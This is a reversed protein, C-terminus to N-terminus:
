RPPEGSGGRASCARLPRTARTCFFQVDRDAALPRLAPGFFHAADDYAFLAMPQGNAVAADLVRQTNTFPTTEDHLGHQLLLPTTVTALAPLLDDVKATSWLSAARFADTARLARLSVQGGMSHAWLFANDTDAAELQELARVLALVDQAYYDVANDLTVFAGGESRNHGRYDPMVVLFGREAFLVPVSRYYDGPRWDEGGATIGYLPPDPHFGHNAVVVPFGEPPPAQKPVAVLAYVTLGDSLYSVLSATFAATAKEERALRLTPADDLARLAAVSEPAPLPTQACAASGCVVLLALLRRESLRTSRM